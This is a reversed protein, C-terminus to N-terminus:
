NFSVTSASWAASPSQTFTAGFTGSGPSIYYASGNGNLIPSLTFPSAVSQIVQDVCTGSVVFSSQTVNVTPSALSTNSAQNNKPTGTLGLGSVGRIEYYWYSPHVSAGINITVKTAGATGGVMYWITTRCGSGSTSSTAGSIITWTNGADDTVGAPTVGGNNSAVLVRVNATNALPVPLDQTSVNTGPDIQATNVLAIKRKFLAFPVMQADAEAAILTVSACILLVDFVNWFSKMNLTQWAAPESSM